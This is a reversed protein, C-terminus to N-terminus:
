MSQIVLWRIKYTIQDTLKRESVNKFSIRSGDEPNCNFLLM